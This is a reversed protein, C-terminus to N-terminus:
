DRRRRTRLWLLPPLLLALEFGLGCGTSERSRWPKGVCQPDPDAIGDGDPDSVGTPCVGGACQGYISQGGDFDILGPDPDQAPDNNVGDQCQATESVSAADWCGPDAADIFGDSDNDVGDACEAVEYAGIDCNANQPRPVGSQDSM